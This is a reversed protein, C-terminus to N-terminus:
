SHCGLTRTAILLQPLRALTTHASCRSRSARELSFPLQILLSLFIPRFRDYIGHCTCFLRIIIRLLGSYYYHNIIGDRLHAGEAELGLVRQRVYRSEM